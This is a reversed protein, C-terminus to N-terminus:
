SPVELNWSPPPRDGAVALRQGLLRQAEAAPLRKVGPGPGASTRVAGATIFVTVLGSGGDEAPEPPPAAPSSNSTAGYSPQTM